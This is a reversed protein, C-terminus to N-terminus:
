RINVKTPDRFRNQYKRVMQKMEFINMSMVISSVTNEGRERGQLIDLTHYSKPSRLIKMIKWSNRDNEFSRRKYKVVEFFNNMKSQVRSILHGPCFKIHHFTLFAKGFNKDVRKCRKQCFITDLGDQGGYRWFTKYTAVNRKEIVELDNARWSEQRKECRLVTPFLVVVDLLEVILNFPDLLCTKYYTFIVEFVNEFYKYVAM